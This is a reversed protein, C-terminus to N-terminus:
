SPLRDQFGIKFAAELKMGSALRDNFRLLQALRQGKNGAIFYHMLAWSEAYFISRKDRENYVSSAHDVSFLTELPM